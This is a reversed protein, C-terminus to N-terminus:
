CKLRKGFWCWRATLYCWPLTQCKPNLLHNVRRWNGTTAPWVNVPPIKSWQEKRCQNLEATNMPHTTHVARNLDPSPSPRQQLWETRLKSRHKPSNAQQMVWGRNINELEGAFHISLSPSNIKGDSLLGGPDQPLCLGRHEEVKSWPQSSTKFNTHKAQTHTHTGELCSLNTWVINQWHHTSCGPAAKCVEFM